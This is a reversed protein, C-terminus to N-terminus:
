RRKKKGSMFEKAKNIAIGAAAAGLSAAADTPEATFKTLQEIKSDITHHIDDIKKKIYFMIIVMGLLLIILLAFFIINTLYFIDQLNM